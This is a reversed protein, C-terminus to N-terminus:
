TPGNALVAWSALTPSYHNAVKIPDSFNVYKIFVYNRCDIRFINAQTESEYDM